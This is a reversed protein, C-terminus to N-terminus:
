RVAGAAHSGGRSAALDESGDEAREGRRRNWIWLGLGLLVALLLLWPVIWIVADGTSPASNEGGSM